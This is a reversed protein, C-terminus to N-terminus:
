ILRLFIPYTRSDYHYSKMKQMFSWLYLNGWKNSDNNYYLEKNNLLSELTDSMMHAVFRFYDDRTDSM